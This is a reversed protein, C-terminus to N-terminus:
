SLNPSHWIENKGPYKSFPCQALASPTHFAPSIASFFQSYATYPGIQIGRASFSWTPLICYEWKEQPLLSIPMPNHYDFTLSWYLIPKDPQSHDQKFAGHLSVKLHVQVKMNPPGPPALRKNGWLHFEGLRLSDPSLTGPAKLCPWKCERLGIKNGLYELKEVKM